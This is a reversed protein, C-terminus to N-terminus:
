PNFADQLKEAQDPLYPSIGYFCLVGEKDKVRFTSGQVRSRNCLIINYDKTDEHRNASRKGM